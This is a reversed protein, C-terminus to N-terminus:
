WFKMLTSILVGTTVLKEPGIDGYFSTLATMCLEQSSLTSAGNPTSMVTRKDM